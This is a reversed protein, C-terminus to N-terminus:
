PLKEIVASPVRPRLHPYTEIMRAIDSLDKVRKSQRRGEDMFAWIKGQLVDEISAVPLQLDLVERETAREVFTFYRPDTQLQVRLRSGPDSVNISHEFREVAFESGLVQEARELDDAAVAVDLDLTIVPEVYANVAAGGIVCFRAGSSRLLDVVRLLFGSRDEIVTQWYALAEM